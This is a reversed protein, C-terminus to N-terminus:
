NPKSQIIKTQATGCVKKKKDNKMSDDVAITEEATKANAKDLMIYKFVCGFYPIIFFVEFIHVARLCHFRQM